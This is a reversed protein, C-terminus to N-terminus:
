VNVFSMIKQTIKDVPQNQALITLDAKLYYPKREALHGTIYFALLDQSLDSLLPREIDGPKLRNYLIKEEQALYISFTHANIYEMIGAITPTGGGLALVFAKESNIIDKLYQEELQRFHEEGKQTFLDSISQNEKACIFDDLDIFSRNLKEALAKGVTTKGAGMYGLLVIKETGSYM